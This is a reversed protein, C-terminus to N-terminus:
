LLDARRDLSTLALRKQPRSPQALCPGPLLGARSEADCCPPVIPLCGPTVGGCFPPIRLGPHCPLLPIALEASVVAAMKGQLVCRLELLCLGARPLKIMM